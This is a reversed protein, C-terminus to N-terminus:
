PQSYLIENLKDNIKKWDSDMNNKSILNEIEIKDYKNELEVQIELAILLLKARDLDNLQNKISLLKPLMNNAVKCDEKSYVLDYLIAYQEAYDQNNLDRLFISDKDTNVTGIYFTNGSPDTLTFRRDESLDRIKTIKPFGNRPVRGTNTTLNSIFTNYIEDVNDVSIFCMSSNQEPAVEKTGYFHLAIENFKIVIYSRTFQGVIEFGLHKYFDIQAKTNSCPLIPIVKNLNFNGKKFYFLSGYLKIRKHVSM